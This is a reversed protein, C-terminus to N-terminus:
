PVRQELIDMYRRYFVLFLGAGILGAVALLGAAAFRGVYIDSLALVACGIWSVGLFALGLGKLILLGGGTDEKVGIKARIPGWIGLPKARNYFEMLAEEEDPRTLLTVILWSATTLAIALLV